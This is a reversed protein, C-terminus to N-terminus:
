FDSITYGLANAIYPILLLLSKLNKILKEAKGLSKVSFM